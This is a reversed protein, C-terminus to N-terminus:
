KDTEDSMLDDPHIGFLRAIPVRLGKRLRYLDGRLEDLESEEPNPDQACSARRFADDDVYSLESYGSLSYGILQAFQQRDEQSFDLVAIQNMDIGGNDLLYRVIKNAKFRLVGHADPELPQIPHPKPKKAKKSM